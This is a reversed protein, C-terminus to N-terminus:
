MFICAFIIVLSLTMLHVDNKQSKSAPVQAKSTTTGRTSAVKSVIAVDSCALYFGGDEESSWYWQIVANPALRNPVLVQAQKLNVDINDKLVQMALGPYQIAVRVGPDSTHPLTINWGVTLASGAQLNM